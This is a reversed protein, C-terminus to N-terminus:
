LSPAPALSSDISQNLAESESAIIMLEDRLTNYADRDRGINSRLNELSTARALLKSREADFEAQSAFEGAGARDNFRAIDDNMQSVQRNYAVTNNDISAKLRTMQNSIEESRVQLEAFVSAYQTHLAVVAGRDIFYKKYHSELEASVQAVETGIISHLENDREGPETRAYFAMRELFNENTRLKAYEAEVLANVAQREADDMRLYAAHLMEHAATVERIGDLKANPVDYIYIRNGDYCGLIATSKEHRSCKDNFAQTGELSPRSAYFLFEGTENMTTRDAFAAIENTPKYQWVSLHDIVLQRNVLLLSTFAVSVLVVVLSAVYGASKYQKTDSM